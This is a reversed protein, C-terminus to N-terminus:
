MDRALHGAAAVRQRLSSMPGRPAPPLLRRISGCALVHPQPREPGRRCLGRRCGNLSGDLPRHLWTNGCACHCAKRPADATLQTV